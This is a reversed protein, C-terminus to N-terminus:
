RSYGALERREIRLLRDYTCTVRRCEAAIRLCDFAEARDGMRRSIKAMLIYTSAAHIWWRRWTRLKPHARTGKMSLNALLEQRRSM